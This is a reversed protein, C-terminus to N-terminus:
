RTRTSQSNLGFVQKTAVFVALLVMAAGLILTLGGGILAAWRDSIVLGFLGVIDLQQPMFGPWKEEAISIWGGVALWLGFGVLGLLAGLGLPKSNSSRVETNM